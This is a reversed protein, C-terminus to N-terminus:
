AEYLLSREALTTNVELGMTKVTAHLNLGICGHWFADSTAIMFKWGKIGGHGVIWFSQTCGEPAYPNGPAVGAEQLIRAEKSRELNGAWKSWQIPKLDPSSLVVGVCLLLVSFLTELAIDIPLSL